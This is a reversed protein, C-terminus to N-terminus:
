QHNNVLSVARGTRISEDVADLVKQCVMGDHFDPHAPTGTRLCRVFSAYINTEHPEFQDPNVNVPQFESSPRQHDTIEKQWQYLKGDIFRVSGRSGDLEFTNSGAAFRSVEIHALAGSKMRGSFTAADYATVEGLEGTDARLRKRIFVRGLGTVAAFEDGLLFRALDVLHAGLDSLAGSGGRARDQRWELPVDPNSLRSVTLRARFHFVEGILGENIFRKVTLAAPNLRYGLGVMALVGARKVADYMRSAEEANLAMPKECLIHLGAAACDQAIPAHLHDPTMIDVADVTGRQALMDRYDAFFRVDHLGYEDALAYAKELRPACLASIHVGEARQYGEVHQPAIRGCGILGIRVTKM